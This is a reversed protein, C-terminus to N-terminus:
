SFAGSRSGAEAQGRASPMEEARWPTLRPLWRPVNRRYEPYKSRFRRLLHKEEAGRVYIMNTLAVVILFGFIPWSRFLLSEAFLIMFAGILMPNRVFCYPGRIVLREPPDWHSPTGRGYVLFLAATWLVLIGGALLSFAGLVFAARGGGFKYAPFIFLLLAPVVVFVILPAALARGWRIWMAAEPHINEGAGGSILM